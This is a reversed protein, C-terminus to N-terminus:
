QGRTTCCISLDFGNPAKNNDAIWEPPITMTLQNVAKMAADWTMRRTEGWSVLQGIMDKDMVDYAFLYVEHGGEFKSKSVDWIPDDEWSARFDVGMMLGPSLYMAARVEDEKSWNVSAIPGFKHGAIGTQRMFNFGQGPETGYDTAEPRAPDFGTCLGYAELVEATTFPVQRSQANATATGLLEAAAAMFCCGAGNPMTKPNAKDPGNGFMAFPLMRGLSWDVRAPPTPLVSLNVYTKLALKVPRVMPRLGLKVRQM